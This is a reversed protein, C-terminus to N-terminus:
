PLLHSEDINDNITMSHIDGHLIDVYFKDGQHFFNLSFKNAGYQPVSIFNQTKYTKSVTPKCAKDNILCSSNLSIPPSVKPLGLSQNVMIKPIFVKLPSTGVPVSKPCLYAIETNALEWAKTNSIM